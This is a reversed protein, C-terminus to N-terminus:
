YSASPFGSGPLGPWFLLGLGFIFIQGLLFWNKYPYNGLSAFVVTAFLLEFGAAGVPLGAEGAGV